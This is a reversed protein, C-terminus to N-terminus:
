KTINSVSSCEAQYHTVQNHVRVTHEGAGNVAVDQDYLDRFDSKKTNYELVLRHVNPSVLRSDGCSLIDVGYLHWVELTTDFWVIGACDLGEAHCGLADDSTSLVAFVAVSTWSESVWGQLVVKCRVLNLNLSLKLNEWSVWCFSEYCIFWTCRLIGEPDHFISKYGYIPYHLLM